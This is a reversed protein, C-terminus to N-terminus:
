LDGNVVLYVFLKVVKSFRPSHVTYVNYKYLLFDLCLQTLLRIDELCVFISVTAGTTMTAFM